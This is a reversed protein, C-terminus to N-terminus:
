TIFLWANEAASRFFAHPSIKGDVTVANPVDILAQGISEVRNM